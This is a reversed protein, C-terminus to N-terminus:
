GELLKLVADQLRAKSKLRNYLERALPSTVLHSVVIHKSSEAQLVRGNAQEYEEARFTPGVWLVYNARDLTVGHSMTSAVAVLADLEGAQVGNVAALRDERSTDGNVQAVRFGAKALAGSVRAVAARFPAFILVPTDAEQVYDQIAQLYEGCDLEAVQRDGDLHAYVGGSEVQMTKSLVGAANAATIEAGALEARAQEKLAQKLAKQEASLEVPIHDYQVTPVDGCDNLTFRIAPQLWAAVTRESSEKPLWRFRSVQYMTMDRWQGLNPARDHLLKVLGHADVPSQSTPSATLLWLRKGDRVISSLAKWRRSKPNKFATAEDAIVLDVDPLHHAVLHLSDPNVILFQYRLDGALREKEARTGRLVVARYQPMHMFLNRAWVAELSSLLGVILVRRVEGARILYDAAWLSSMTKGTRMGNLCICRTHTALFEATTRQNDRPKWIGPWDYHCIPHPVGRFGRAQLVEWNSHTHPLVIVKDNRAHPLDGLAEPPLQVQTFLAPKTPHVQWSM